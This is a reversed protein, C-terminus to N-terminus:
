IIITLLYTITIEEHFRYSGTRLSKHKAFKVRCNIELQMYEANDNTNFSVPPLQVSHESDVSEFIISQLENYKRRM